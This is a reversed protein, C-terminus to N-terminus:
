HVNNCKFSIMEGLYLVSQLSNELERFYVSLRIVKYKM